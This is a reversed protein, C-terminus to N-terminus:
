ACLRMETALLETAEQVPLPRSFVYGQIEDCKLRRLFELQEVTEVGEAIAKMGLNHALTIIARAIEADNTNQIADRIFSQDIKLTDAPFRKLFSLSSYGTAFDDVSIYMGLEKLKHFMTVASDVDKMVASETIELELYEPSLGSKDLAECIMEVMGEQQFQRPSLNVAMRIPPLGKDQWTKAQKCATNVVWEGVPIILGTEELIPIFESPYVLGHDPHQWRLLAELAVINGTTLDVIPQYYLLFEQRELAKRVSNELALRELAKDGMAPIYFQYSDKGYEKARYLAIDANRLLAHAGDGDNPYLAVGASATIHFERDGFSFPPRLSDIIKQTIKAADQTRRLRPLLVIFEDGGLRAITDASRLNDKLRVAVDHLLQDGVGHGLTDNVTKFNDLDLFIIALMDGNRSANNIATTFRDYFLMRNPLGTLADYYAIYNLMEAAQKQETVDEFSEVGGIIRGNVDKILDANKSIIREEGDKRKITCGKGMIPKAVNRTYLSCGKLCKSIAFISCKKGVVEESAYGTIEEAKKNFGTIISDADVTFIASPIVRYLQEMREKSELLSREILKLESINTVFAFASITNGDKDRVTTANFRTYIDKGSKSKLVIDYHRQSCGAIRSTQDKFIKANEKDTFDFPKKGLMEERSYELMRCLSENVEVTELQPNILWFGEAAGNIISRYREESERLMDQAQQHAVDPERLLDEAGKRQAKTDVINTANLPKKRNSSM